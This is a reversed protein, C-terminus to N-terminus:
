LTGGHEHGDIVSRTPSATATLAAVLIRKTGACQPSAQCHPSPAQFFVPSLLDPTRRGPQPSIRRVSRAISVRRELPRM